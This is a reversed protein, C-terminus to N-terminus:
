RLQREVKTLIPDVLPMQDAIWAECKARLVQHRNAQTFDSDHYAPSAGDALDALAWRMLYFLGFSTDAAGIDTVARELAEPDRLHPAIRAYTALSGALSPDGELDLARLAAQHAAQFESASLVTAETALQAVSPDANDLEIMRWAWDSTAQPGAGTMVRLTM